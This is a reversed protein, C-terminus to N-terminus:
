RVKRGTRIIDIIEEPTVDKKYFSGIKIGRDLIEFRDAIPYVQYVNHTIFISSLGRKKIDKIIELVKESERVSLATTPEDLVLLKAGFYIARGIAISQKEGGSLASADTDILKLEIGLDRLKEKVKKKMNTIDLLAFPGYKKIEEKGLFFNRWINLLEVLNSGQYVVEIGAARAEQPSRFQVKKGMFYIEGSDIPYVGMLCKILTSKGAGNDGLLGVIESYGVTFDVNKLAQVAGFKKSINVMKLLPEEKKM